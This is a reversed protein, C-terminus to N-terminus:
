QSLGTPERDEGQLPRQFAQDRHLHREAAAVLVMRGLEPLLIELHIPALSPPVAGLAEVKEVQLQTLTLERGATVM